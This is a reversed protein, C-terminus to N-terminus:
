KYSSKIDLSALSAESGDKDDTYGPPGEEGSSKTTPSTYIFISKHRRLVMFLLAGGAVVLAVIIFKGHEAHLVRIENEQWQNKAQLSEESAFEKERLGAVKMSDLDYILAGSLTSSAAMTNIVDRFSEKSINASFENTFHQDENLAYTVLKLNNFVGRCEFSLDVIINGTINKVDEETHMCSVHIQNPLESHIWFRRKDFKVVALDELQHLEMDAACLETDVIKDRIATLLCDHTNVSSIIDETKCYLTSSESLCSQMFDSSFAILEENEQDYAYHNHQAKFFIIYDAFAAPLSAVEYLKFSRKETVPVKLSMKIEGNNFEFKVESSKICEMPTSCAYHSSNLSLVLMQVLSEDILATDLRGNIYSTMIANIQTSFLGYREKFEQMLLSEKLRKLDKQLESLRDDSLEAKLQGPKNLQTMVSDMKENIKTQNEYVQHLYRRMENRDDSNMVGGAWKLANGFADWSRKHRSNKKPSKLFNGYTYNLKRLERVLADREPVFEDNEFSTEKIEKTLYDLVPQLKYTRVDVNEHKYILKV